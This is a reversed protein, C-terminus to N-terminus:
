KKKQMMCNLFKEVCKEGSYLEIPKTYQDECCVFLDMHNM